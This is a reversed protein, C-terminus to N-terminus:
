RKRNAINHIISTAHQVRKRQNLLARDANQASQRSTAEWDAPPQPEEPAPTHPAVRHRKSELKKLIDAIEKRSEVEAPDDQWPTPDAM